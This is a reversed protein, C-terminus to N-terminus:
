IWGMGELITNRVVFARPATAGVAVLAMALGAVECIGSEEMVSLGLSPFPFIHERSKLM